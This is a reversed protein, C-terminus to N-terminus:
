GSGSCLDRYRRGDLRVLLSAIITGALMGSMTGAVINGIDHSHRLVVLRLGTLAGGLVICIAFALVARKRPVDLPRPALSRRAQRAVYIALVTLGVLTSAHQLIRHMAMTGLVPVEHATRLAPIWRVFLGSAHTLGDWAIHSLNGLVASVIASAIVGPTWRERWAAAFVPTLARPAALLAPWKVLHHWLAGVIFTIPVGWALIGLATHSFSSAQGGRVFYEFDPAMSGVVLCTPDLRLARWWRVGPLVAM